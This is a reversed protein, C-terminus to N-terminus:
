EAASESASLISRHTPVMPMNSYCQIQVNGSLSISIAVHPSRVAEVLIVEEQAYLHLGKGWGM